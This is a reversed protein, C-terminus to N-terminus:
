CSLLKHFLMRISFVPHVIHFFISYICQAISLEKVLAEIKVFKLRLLYSIIFSNYPRKQNKKDQDEAVLDFDFPVLTCNISKLIHSGVETFAVVASVGDNNNRYQSGWMDGVRIDAVSKDYKFKCKNYCAKGLCTNSLFMKYFYDGDSYCSSYNGKDGELSIVFPNQWGNRKDRWSAIHISGIGKIGKLYKHWLLMSPTGHCFFDILVFNEECKFKRIMRRFSDVQCPTGTFLYKEKFNVRSLASATYSQLYKSGKSAELEKVSNAIYHEVINEVINYRAAVVKYGQNILYQSIVYSVGGSSCSKRIASDNSWSGFSNVPSLQLSLGSDVYSCVDYCIGCQTCLEPNTLYPEYFGSNNLRIGIIHRSCARSCIGCGYCDKIGDISKM